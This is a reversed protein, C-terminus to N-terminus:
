ISKRMMQLAIFPCTINRFSPVWNCCIQCSCYLVWFLSEPCGVPSLLWLLFNVLNSLTISESLYSKLWELANGNIGVFKKKEHSKIKMSNKCVFLCFLVVFLTCILTVITIIIIIASVFQRSFNQWESQRELTGNLMQETPKM